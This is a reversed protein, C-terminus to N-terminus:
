LYQYVSEPIVLQILKIYNSIWDMNTDYFISLLQLHM